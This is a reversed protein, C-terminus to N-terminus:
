VKVKVANKRKDKSGEDDLYMPMFGIHIDKSLEIINLDKESTRVLRMKKIGLLECTKIITKFHHWGFYGKGLHIISDAKPVKNGTPVSTEKDIKGFGDCIPCAGSIIYDEDDYDAMYEADVEGSGGCEPCEVEEYTTLIEDVKPYRDLADQLDSVSLPCDCNYERVPIKGKPNWTKYEGSVCERNVMIMIHGESAWVRGDDEQIFPEKMIQRWGNDKEVYLDFIEKENNLKMNNLKALRHLRMNLMNNERVAIAVM